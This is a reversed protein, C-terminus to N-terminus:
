RDRGDASDDDKKSDGDPTEDPESLTEGDEEEPHSYRYSETLPKTLVSDDDGM